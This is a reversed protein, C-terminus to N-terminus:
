TVSASRRASSAPAANTAYGESASPNAVFAAGALLARRDADTVYGTRVIRARVRAPSGAIAADVRAAADPFWPVEGGALVLWGDEVNAFAEILAVLNKRPELGGVFLAYEGGIGFRRRAADVEGASPAVFPDTALPVVVVLDADVDEAALLDERTAASPVIIAGAEGLQDRFRRRWRDHMHPATEPHRLFAVDHVLLVPRTAGRLPPALFNTALFVEASASVGPWGIRSSLPGFVRAPIRSAFERLGDVDPYFRRPRLLGRAHLYWAGYRGGPDAAPLHRLLRDTVVGVGTRRPDLAPRADILARM